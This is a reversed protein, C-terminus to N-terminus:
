ATATGPIEISRSGADGGMYGPMRIREKDGGEMLGRECRACREVVVYGTPGLVRISQKLKEHRVERHHQRWAERAGKAKQLLGPKCGDADLTSEVHADPERLLPWSIQPSLPAVHAPPSVSVEVALPSTPSVMYPSTPSALATGPMRTMPMAPSSHEDSEDSIFAVLSSRRSRESVPSINVISARLPQPSSSESRRVLALRGPLRSLSTPSQRASIAPPPPPRPPHLPPPPSRRAITVAQAAQTRKKSSKLGAHHLLNALLTEKKRPRDIIVEFQPTKKRPSSVPDSSSWLHPRTKPDQRKSHSCHPCATAQPYPSKRGLASSSRAQRELVIKDLTSGTFSKKWELPSPLLEDDKPPPSPPRSSSESEDGDNDYEFNFEGLVAEDLSRPKAALLREHPDELASDYDESPGPQEMAHSTMADDALKSGGADPLIRKSQSSATSRACGGTCSGEADFAAQEWNANRERPSGIYVSAFAKLKTSLNSIPSVVDSTHALKAHAVEVCSIPTEGRLPIALHPLSSSNASENELPPLQALEPRLPDHNPFGPVDFAPEQIPLLQVQQICDPSSEWVGMEGAGGDLAEPIVPSSARGEDSPTASLERGDEWEVSERMPSDPLPPLVAPSRLLRKGMAPRPILTRSSEFGPNPPVTRIFSKFSRVPREMGKLPSSRLIYQKVTSPIRNHTEHM